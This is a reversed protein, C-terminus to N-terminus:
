VGASASVASLSAMSLRQRQIRRLPVALDGREGVEVGDLGLWGAMVELEDALEATVRPLDAGPEAFAGPV